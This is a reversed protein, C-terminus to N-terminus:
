MRTSSLLDLSDTRLTYAGKLGFRGRACIESALDTAGSHIRTRTRTADRRQQRMVNAGEAGSPNAAGSGVARSSRSPDLSRAVGSAATGSASSPCPSGFVYWYSSTSQFPQPIHRDTCLHRRQHRVRPGKPTGPGKPAGCKFMPVICLLNAHVGACPHCPSGLLISGKKASSFRSGGRHPYRVDVESCPSRSVSASTM